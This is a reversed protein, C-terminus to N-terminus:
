KEAGGKSAAAVVHPEFADIGEQHPLSTSHSPDELEASAMEASYASKIHRFVTTTESLFPPLIHCCM